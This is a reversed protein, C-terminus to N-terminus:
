KHKGYVGSKVCTIFLDAQQDVDWRCVVGSTKSYLYDAIKTHGLFAAMYLPKVGSNLNPLDSNIEVMASAINVNGTAAAYTLASNGIINVAKLDCNRFTMWKLLKKVFEEQNAAAAIHLTTEYKTTIKRQINLMDVVSEWDGNLAAQYLKGCETCTFLM